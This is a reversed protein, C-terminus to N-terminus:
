PRTTKPWSLIWISLTFDLEIDRREWGQISMLMKPLKFHCFVSDRNPSAPHVKGREARALILATPQSATYVARYNCYPRLSIQLIILERQTDHRSSRREGIWSADTAAIVSCTTSRHTIRVDRILTSFRQFLNRLPFDQYQVSRLLMSEEGKVITELSRYPTRLHELTQCFHGTLSQFQRPLDAIKLDM